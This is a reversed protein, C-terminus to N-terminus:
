AVPLELRFEAGPGGPNTLNLWGGLAKALRRSLALGLGVGPKQVAAQAASKHFPRFMREADASPIGPGDDRVTVWARNRKIGGAIRIVGTGSEPRGYKCANDVLNFLIQEVATVDTSLASSRCDADCQIEVRMDEAAAREDLRGKMRDLLDGLPIRERQARASGREIRSYALVNEVLHHLRDAETRMTRLYDTRKGEDPIMGEALLDSYLRFTTLPTRLEHTVSSVFAARRESLRIVGHVLLAAALLAFAVAAWGVMLPASLPSDGSAVAPSEGPELRLPFSVLALPDEAALGALKGNGSTPVLSADPLLDGVEALLQHKVAEADLWVGQIRTKISFPSPLDVPGPYSPFTVVRLLFLESGIWVARMPRVDFPQGAVQPIAMPSAFQNLSDSVGASQSAAPSQPKAAEGAVGDGVQARDLIQARKQTKEANAVRRASADRQMGIDGDESQNQANLSNFITQEVAKARQARENGYSNQQYDFDQRAKSAGKQQRIALNAGEQDPANKPVSRWAAEGVSAAQRLLSWKEDVSGKKDEQGAFEERLLSQLRAFRRKREALIEPRVGANRSWTDETEPTRLRGRADLEFHLKAMPNEESLFPSAGGVQSNNSSNPPVFEGNRYASPPDRNEGLIIAAGATDMRWLALRTREGLDARAEALARDRELARVKWTFWGMAGVILLACAALIVWILKANKM